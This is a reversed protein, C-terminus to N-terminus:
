INRQTSRLEHRDSHFALSIAVQYKQSYAESYGEGRTAVAKQLNSTVNRMMFYKNKENRVIWIISFDAKFFKREVMYEGTEGTM